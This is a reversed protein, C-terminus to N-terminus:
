PQWRKLRSVEALARPTSSFMRWTEKAELVAVCIDGDDEEKLRRLRGQPSMDEKHAIFTGVPMRPENLKAEELQAFARAIELVSHGEPTDSFRVGGELV